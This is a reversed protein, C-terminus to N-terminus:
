TESARPRRIPDLRLPVELIDCSVITGRWSVCAAFPTISDSRMSKIDPLRASEDKPVADDANNSPVVNMGYM